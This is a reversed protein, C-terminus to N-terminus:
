GGRKAPFQHGGGEGVLLLNRSSFYSCFLVNNLYEDRQFKCIIRRFFMRKKMKEMFDGNLITLERTILLQFLVCVCFIFHLERHHTLDGGPLSFM